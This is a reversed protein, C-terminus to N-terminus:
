WPVLRILTRILGEKFGICSGQKNMVKLHFMKKGLTAQKKSTEMLIFYLWAPLSITCLVWIFIQFGHTFQKFPFGNGLLYGILQLGVLVLGLILFDTAYALLRVIAKKM